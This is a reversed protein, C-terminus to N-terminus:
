ARRGDIGIEDAIAAATVVHDGTIMKVGIGAGPVPRHRGQVDERSRTASASWGAFVLGDGRRPPTLEDEALAHRRSRTASPWPACAQRAARPRSPRRRADPTWARRRGTPPWTRQAGPGEPVGEAAGAAGGYPHDNM